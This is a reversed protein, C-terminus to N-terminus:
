ITWGECGWKKGIGDVCSIIKSKYAESSCFKWPGLKSIFHLCSTKLSAQINKFDYYPTVIPDEHDIDVIPPNAGWM